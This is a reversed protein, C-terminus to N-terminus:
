ESGDESPQNTSEGLSLVTNPLSQYDTGTQALDRSNDSVPTPLMRVTQNLSDPQGRHNGADFGEYRPTPLVKVWDSLGLNHNGVIGNRSHDRESWVADSATPTPVNLSASGGNGATRHASMPLEYLRGRRTMGSRPLTQLLPLEASLLTGQFMRLCRTDPDFSALLVPSSPGSTDRITPAAASAPMPSPSAPIAVSSSTLVELTQKM